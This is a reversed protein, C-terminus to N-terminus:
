GPMMMNEWWAPNELTQMAALMEEDSMGSGFSAIGVNSGFHIPGTAASFTAEPQYIPTTDMKRDQQFSSKLSSVQTSSGDDQPSRVSFTSASSAHAVDRSPTNSSPPPHPHLRGVTAGDRRHRSLLGALFRAYLKPTHRDDIAIEPSSLTQILRGILDFAETEQEKSLLNSFEPKLIKSIDYSCEQIVAAAILWM